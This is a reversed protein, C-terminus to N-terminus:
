EKSEEEESDILENSDQGSDDKSLNAAKSEEGDDNVSAEEYSKTEEEVGEEHKIAKM